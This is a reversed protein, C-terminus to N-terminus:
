STLEDLATVLSAVVASTNGAAKALAYGNLVDRCFEFQKRDLAKTGVDAVMKLTSILKLQVEEDETRNRISFVRIDIAKTRKALSGRDEAVQVAPSCDQYILTPEEQFCGVEAMLNRLGVVDVSCM